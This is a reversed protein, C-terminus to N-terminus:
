AAGMEEHRQRVAMEVAPPLKLTGLRDVYTGGYMHRFGIEPFFSIDEPCLSSLAALTDYLIVGGRGDGITAGEYVNDYMFRDHYREAKEWAEVPDRVWLFCPHVREAMYGDALPLRPQSLGWYLSPPTRREFCETFEVDSHLFVIPDRRGNAAFTSIVDRIMDGHTIRTPTRIYGAGLGEALSELRESYVEPSGTNFVAVRATPFGM